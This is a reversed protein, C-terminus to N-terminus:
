FPLAFPVSLISLSLSCVSAILAAFIRDKMLRLPFVPEQVSSERGVFGEWVIFAAFLAVGIILSSLIAPSAWAFRSGADEFAFVILVSSCLLLAAGGVDLRALSARSLKARLATRTASSSRIDPFHNPM